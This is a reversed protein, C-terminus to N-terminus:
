GSIPGDGASLATVIQERRREASEVASDLALRYVIAGAIADLTLVGFFAWESNFAYRALYALGAPLFAVPYVVLLIAQV